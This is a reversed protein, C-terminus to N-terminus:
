DNNPLVKNEDDEESLDVTWKENTEEDTVDFVMEDLGDELWTLITKTADLPNSAVICEFELKVTFSKLNEM